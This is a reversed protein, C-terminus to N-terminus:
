QAEKRLDILTIQMAPHLQGVKVVADLHNVALVTVQYPKGDLVGRITFERETQKNNNLVHNFIM